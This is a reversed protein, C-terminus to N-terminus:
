VILIKFTKSTNDTLRVTLLYVGAVAPVNFATENGSVSKRCIMNGALGYFTLDRLSAYGKSKVYLLGGANLVNGSISICENRAEEQIVASTGPATEDLKGTIYAGQLAKGAENPHLGDGLYTASNEVTIGSENYCDFYPVSKADCVAKLVEIKQLNDDNKGARTSQLPLAVYIEANPFRIKLTDLSWRLAGAMTFIDIKSLDNGQLATAANGMAIVEDNTGYAFIIVDPTPATKNDIDIFYKQLHVIACNNIRQQNELVNGETPASTRIGAFDPDYYNQTQITQGAVTRERKYWVAASVAGNYLNGFRLNRYVHNAWSNAAATISNGFTALNKGEFASSTILYEAKRPTIDTDGIKGNPAAARVFYTGRTLGAPITFNVTAKNQSVLAEVANVVTKDEADVLSVLLKENDGILLTNVAVSITAAKDNGQNEANLSVSAIKPKGYFAGTGMKVYEVDINCRHYSEAGFFIGNQDGTAVVGVNEMVPEEVDDLYVDYRLHDPHIVWRYIQWESTNITHANTTGGSSTSVFGGSVGDGYKLFIPAAFGKSGLRLSIQNAEFYSGEDAVGVPQIRAKVEISYAAGSTLDALSTTPRLWAWRATSAANTKKFNVYGNQQTAVGGASGSQYIQWAQNTSAGENQSYAAMSKDLIDWTKDYDPIPDGDAPNSPDYIAVGVKSDACGYYLYWKQQYYVLGEIFVTGNAYQGSKEFDDIPRFFPVDSRALLKCPENLDFLMQGASYTGANFRPDAYENANNRGNYLMVIGKDTKVAPPGCEVLSSDFYGRRTNALSLLNGNADEIPTWNVLDNSVAACTRNEGWYMFYLWDQGNYNVNMQAIVQKGDKIETVISSSKTWTNLYKGAYAQAFIAGYRTWTLLDRSTAVCLRATSRDWGTYFMVYTGDETVAVRPDECGGPWEYTQSFSDNDPYFVPASHRTMTVGDTTEALAVRSVRKGIGTASNDEARYLVCIKGDKEVAAPNFTDSEEWKVDAQNMPCFFVSNADPEIVPNKGEPRVFGGLMWDPLKNTLCIVYEATKPRINADGIKGGPAAAKVFYKGKPVSAPISLNATAKDQSVLAEVADVVTNDGGDVLSVLLKEGDDIMATTATVTITKETNEVHSSSSLSLSVIKYKSYFDGTGMKVYEVDINCRHNGEAGFYVGNDDSKSITAVNEFLADEVGDVYVDYTLHDPHFVWRYVQWEATNLAYVNSTGGSTTSVWGGSIGDGYKLFIPAGIGDGKSRLSIQNSEYYSGADAIGVPKIRAKVEISYATAPMLDAFAASRLWSWYGPNTSANTKTLNVYGSQQTAVGGASGGQFQAWARNNDSGGDANWAAMSKDLIDWTQAFLLNGLFLISVFLFTTRKM